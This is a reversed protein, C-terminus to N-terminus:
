PLIGHYIKDLTRDVYIWGKRSAHSALDMSFYKVDGYQKMDIVPLDYPAAVSHLISYYTNQAKRSVGIREWLPVNMPISMIIAEAGLERVARLTIDLDSWERAITVDNIFDADRSGVPLPKAFLEKIKPWQSNDVGYPNTDTQRIQEAQATKVLAPWDIQQPQRTVKVQAASLHHIFTVTAYQDQVHMIGLQLRGLPWSLYYLIRAGLSNGTLNRLTFTLFRQDKLTEPFDLMRAAALQKTQMSLYPSYALELAHLESFNGDYHREAVDGFPAMTMIAPGVALIVRRGRLDAGLAALRQVISLASGGKTAANFVMFGTPYTSFFRTAEYKTDLLMLESAGYILLLDDQRLATRELASGGSIDAHDLAAVAHVYKQEVSGAYSSYAVAAMLTVLLAAAAAVLHPLRKM